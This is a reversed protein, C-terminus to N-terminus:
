SRSSLATQAARRIQADGRAKACRELIQRAEDGPLRGLAAAAALKLERLRKRGIWSRRELIASLTPVAEARGVRGLARISERALELEDDRLARRLAAVLGEVVKPNAVSGMSHAVCTAVDTSPHALSEILVQTAAANGIRALAKAAERHLEDPAEAERLIGRLYTILEPNQLEGALRAALRARQPDSTDFAEKLVPATKEGMAVVVASLRGRREPDDAALLADLLHPVAHAGLHLLIQTARVSGATSGACARLVLDALRPGAAVHFLAEEALLRQRQSRSSEMAHSSLVLIARYPEDGASAGRLEDLSAAVRQLLEAYRTEDRCEDLSRLCAVLDAGPEPAVEPALTGDEMETTKDHLLGDLQTLPDADTTQVKPAPLDADDGAALEAPAPSPVAVDAVAAEEAGPENVRVGAGATALAGQVGGADVLEDPDLTLVAVLQVFADHELGPEFRLRRVGREILARVLEDLSGRGIPDSGAVHLAGASVDLELAGARALASEFARFSRELTAKRAPHDSAYFHCAKVARGLEILMAAVDAASRAAVEQEREESM